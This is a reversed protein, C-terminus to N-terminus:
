KLERALASVHDAQKYVSYFDKYGLRTVEAQRLEQRTVKKIVGTLSLEGYAVLKAPLIINKVSSIMALVIALDVAPDKIKIGGAINVYLDQNAFSIKTYRSVIASLVELKSKSIGEAVRKPLSFPTQSSLVQAELLIVRNGELVAAKCVGVRGADGEENLYASPDTVEEMGKDTMEFLGVENISGYRNKYSRLLRLGSREEGELQMVVDVLHELLKPGAVNGQKTIQGVLIFTVGRQKAYSVLKSSVARVQAFGGPLGAVDEMYITQISDIIVFQSKEKEIVALISNLEFASAVMTHDPIKGLLRQARLALQEVSEEASVYLAKQGAQVLNFLLQMLLTSKGVGPEGSILVVESRVLGGGLVRDFEGVGTTIRKSEEKSTSKALDALKVTDIAALAASIQSGDTEELSGWESCQPCQGLWRTSEYACNSCIYLSTKKAM